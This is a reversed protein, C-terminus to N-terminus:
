KMSTPVVVLSNESTGLKKGYKQGNVNNIIVLSLSILYLIRENAKGKGIVIKAAKFEM